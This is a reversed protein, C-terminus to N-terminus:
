PELWARGHEVVGDEFRHVFQVCVAEVHQAEDAAVPTKRGVCRKDLALRRRRRRRGDNAQWGLVSQERNEKKSPLADLYPRQSTLKKRM